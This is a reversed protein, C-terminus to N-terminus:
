VLLRKSKGWAQEPAIYGPTGVIEGTATLDGAGVPHALGFDTVKPTCHALSCRDRGGSDLLVNAPKLDRHIIGQEHAYHAARALTEILAAAQRPPQAEHLEGNLSTGSVFELALFPQGDQEGVELIQVINPHHLRATLQAERRFRERATPDRLDIKP